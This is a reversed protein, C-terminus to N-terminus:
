IRLSLPARFPSTDMYAPANELSQFTIDPLHLAWSIVTPSSTINLGPSTTPTSAQDMIKCLPSRAKSQCCGHGCHSAQQVPFSSVARSAPAKAVQCAICPTLAVVVGFILPMRLLLLFLKSMTKIQRIQDGVLDLDEEVLTPRNMILYWSFAQFTVLVFTQGIASFM